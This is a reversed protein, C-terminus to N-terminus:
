GFSSFFVMLVPSVVNTIFGFSIVTPMIHTGGASLITPLTFDLSTVGGLGIASSSSFRMMVPIFILAIIERILDNLLAVSGWIAGYNDTMIPGSLSYWGFGSALALTNLLPLGLLYAAIVGGVLSSLIFVISTWLGRRNLFAQRLPIGSNRLQIGVCFIMVVLVFTSSHLPFDVVGKSFFGILGGGFVTGCLLLSELVQKWRSPLEQQAHAQRPMPYLKDFLMLSGINTANLIVALGLATAGIQPLKEALDDLQGLSIGIILLILYMCYLTTRNVIRILTPNTLQFLYGLFLPVFAITLGYLM